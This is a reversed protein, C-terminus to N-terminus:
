SKSLNIVLLLTLLFGYADISASAPVLKWKSFLPNQFICAPIKVLSKLFNHPKDLL